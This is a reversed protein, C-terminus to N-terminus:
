LAFKSHEQLATATRQVGILTRQVGFVTSNSHEQVAFTALDGVRAAARWLESDRRKFSAVSGAVKGNTLSRRIRRCCGTFDGGGSRAYNSTGCLSWSRRRPTGQRCPRSGIPWDDGCTDVLFVQPGGCGVPGPEHDSTHGGVSPCRRGLDPATQLDVGTPKVAAPLHTSDSTLPPTGGWTDILASKSFSWTQRQGSWVLGM